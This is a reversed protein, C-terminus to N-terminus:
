QNISDILMETDFPCIMKIANGSVFLNQVGESKLQELKCLEINKVYVKTRNGEKEIKNINEKGGLLSLFTLVLKPDMAKAKQKKPKKSLVQYLFLVVVLLVFGLTILQNWISMFKVTDFLNIMLLSSLLKLM